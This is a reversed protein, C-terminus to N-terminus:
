ILPRKAKKMQIEPVIKELKMFFNIKKMFKLILKDLGM